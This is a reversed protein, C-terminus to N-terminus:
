INPSATSLIQNQKFHIEDADGHDERYHVTKATKGGPTYHVIYVITNHHSVSLFELLLTYRQGEPGM